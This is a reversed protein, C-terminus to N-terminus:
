RHIRKIVRHASINSGDGTFILSSPQALLTWFDCEHICLVIDTFCVNVCYKYTPSLFVFRILTSVEVLGRCIALQSCLMEKFQACFPGQWFSLHYQSNIEICPHWCLSLLYKNHYINVSHKIERNAVFWSIWSFHAYWLYYRIWLIIITDGIFQIRFKMSSIRM